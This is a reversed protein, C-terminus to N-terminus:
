EVKTLKLEIFPYWTVGDQSFEGKEVWTKAQANLVIDYKIKGKQPTEFGWEFHNDEIIKFYADTQNGEMTHSKMGFQKTYPNYSIIGIANFTITGSEPNRGTGEVLLVTGDLKFQINEDQLVKVAPTNGRKVNAEGTWKGAMFSIKKMEQRITESNNPPQAIVQTFLFSCALTITLLLPKM